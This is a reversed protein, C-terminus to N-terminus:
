RAVGARFAMWHSVGAVVLGGILDAIYHQKTTLIALIPLAALALILTGRKKNDQWAALAVLAM